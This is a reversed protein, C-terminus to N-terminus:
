FVSFGFSQFIARGESSLLFLRFAKANSNDSTKLLALPYRIPTHSNEPFTGIVRVGPEAMADTAYVIGLPAEGRSVLALAVRVNEASAIRGSVAEWVGLSVLAQKGYRGAPVADPDAMALRGNGLANGLAFGPAIQIALNSNAPAILVLDNGLFSTRSDPVILDKEAVERMWKEDASVFIDGGGGAEIQRALASTAAFSLVPKPNGKGAWADAAATMAEQLSAAALVLPPEDRGHGADSCSGLVLLLVALLPSLIRFM